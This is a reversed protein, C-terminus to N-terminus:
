IIKPSENTTGFDWISDLWNTYMANDVLSDPDVTGDPLIFSSSTGANMQLTNRPLGKGTDTQGSIDTDYYSNTITGSGLVGCFGGIPINGSKSIISSSYCNTFTPGGNITRGVFGGIGPYGSSNGKAFVETNIVYSNNIRAGNALGVFGGARVDATSVTSNSYVNSNKVLCFSIISATSSLFGAFAGIGYKGKKLVDVNDVVIWSLTGSACVGILGGVYGSESTVTGDKSTIHSVESATNSYGIVGVYDNGTINFDSVELNKIKAESIYGFLGQYDVTPNNIVCNSIKFYNGDYVGTFATTADGIPNWGTGAQYATLDIDSLQIYKKDLGATYTGEWATGVGFTYDVTTKVQELETASVVPIYGLIGIMYDIESVSYIGIYTDTIKIQYKEKILKLIPYDNPIGFEWLTTDWNTFIQASPTLDMLQTTTRGIANTSTPYYDTNWYSNTITGNNSAVFGQKTGTTYISTSCYCNTINCGTGNSGSFGGTGNNTVAGGRSISARCYCNEILGITSTGIFGGVYSGARNMVINVLSACNKISATSTTIQRGCFGGTYMLTDQRNASINGTAICNEISGQNNGVFLGIIYGGNFTGNITGSNKVIGTASVKACFDGSDYLTSSSVNNFSWCNDVTGAVVSAVFSSVASGTIRLVSNYVFCNLVYGGASLDNCIIAFGGPSDNNKIINNASVVNQVTGSVNGFISISRNVGLSPINLNDIRLCNGDYIGSFTSINAIGIWSNLYSTLKIHEVQVYKKDRGGLYTGEWITGLGFTLNATTRIQYLEDHNAVPIYGDEVIMQHLENASYLGKRHLIHNIIM